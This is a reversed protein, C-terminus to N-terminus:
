AKEDMEAKIQKIIVCTGAHYHVQFLGDLWKGYGELTPSITLLLQSKSDKGL